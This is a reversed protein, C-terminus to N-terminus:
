CCDVVFYGGSNYLSDIREIDERLMKYALDSYRSEYMINAYSKFLAMEAENMNLVIRESRLCFDFMSLISMIRSLKLDSFVMDNISLLEVGRVIYVNNKMKEFVDCEVPTKKLAELKDKTEQTIKMDKTKLNTILRIGNCGHPACANGQQKYPCVRGRAVQLFSGTERGHFAYTVAEISVSAAPFLPHTSYESRGRVRTILEPEM